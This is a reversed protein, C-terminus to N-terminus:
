RRPAPAQRWGSVFAPLAGIDALVAVAGGHESAQGFGWAAAIFPVQLAAAADRDQARDGVFLCEAPNWALSKLAEALIPTKIPALDGAACGFLGDFYPLLQLAEAM